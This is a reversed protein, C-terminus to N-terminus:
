YSGSATAIKFKLGETCFTFTPTTIPISSGLVALTTTVTANSPPLWTADFGSVGSFDPFALTANASGLYGFSTAISASKSGQTYSLTASTQYDSPITVVAQLRKYSGSLVTVAPTPLAAGLAVSQSAFTHFTAFVGRSATPGTADVIFVQHFDTARQSGAPIGFASLTASPGVDSSYLIATTCAAGTLYYMAQGYEDGSAGGTVTITGAVPTIAASGGFDITGVSGGSAPNLDRVIVARDNTSPGAILNTRYGVLDQAGSLMNNLTFNLSAATVTALAGGMSIFAADTQGLGAATGTASRAGHSTTCSVIPGSTIEAQTFFSVVTSNATGNQTTVAFGGKGSTVNFKYVDNTGVVRTWAGNGDQAAVWIPKSTAACASYDLTVNGSGGGASTVTVAVTTTQNALGTATGTITLTANGTTATASAAITLTSTNGTTSTPNLTATVGTPAGTVALAVSGAFGSARNINITSTGSAGQNVSVSAPTASLTYSGAAVTAVTLALTATRDTAGTATGRIVVNSTGATASASATLTLTATNGTTPSTNFAATVGSPLGEAALTVGSTFNTRTLNVTVTGNAGQAVSLSTPNLSLTYSSAPAATVTLTFTATVSTVGTGSGTVTLTYTGAPVTAAVTLSVTVTTAAGTTQINTPLIVVGAPAGTVTATPTGTFGGTATVTASVTTSGGQQVTASTPSLAITIAPKPTTGNDDSSGCAQVALSSLLLVVYRHRVRHGIM